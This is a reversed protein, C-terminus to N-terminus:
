LDSRLRSDDVDYEDKLRALTKEPDGTELLLKWMRTGSENLGFYMGTTLNLLVAEGSLDRFVVDQASKIAVEGVGPIFRRNSYRGLHDPLLLQRSAVVQGDGIRSNAELEHAM